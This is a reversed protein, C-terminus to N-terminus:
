IHILSLTRDPEPVSDAATVNNAASDASSVSLVINMLSTPPSPFGADDNYDTVPGNNVAPSAHVVVNDNHDMHGNQAVSNVVTDVPGNSLTSPPAHIEATEMTQRSHQSTKDFGNLKAATNEACRRVYNM